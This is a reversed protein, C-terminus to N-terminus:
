EPPIVNVADTIVTDVGWELLRAVV